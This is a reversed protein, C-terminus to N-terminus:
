LEERPPYYGDNDTCSPAAYERRLVEMMGVIALKDSGDSAYYWDWTRWFGLFNKKELFVKCRGNRTVVKFRYGKPLSPAKM